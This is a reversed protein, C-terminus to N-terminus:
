WVPRWLFVRQWQYTRFGHGAYLRLAPDNREDVSATLDHVGRDAAQHVAFRLVARGVGRGRAEPVVGLYGLELVGPTGTDTLILVGVPRGDADRALWWLPPDPQNTRYGALIDDTPRDTFAEPVDLSGDYSLRLTDAFATPDAHAPAFRYDSSPPPPTHVGTRLMHGIRTVPRFGARVLPDAQAEDDPDLFSYALPAGRDRVLAVVAAALEDGAEGEPQPPIVVASGGNLFQVVAGAVPVGGRWALLVGAPDLEGGTLMAGFRETRAARQDPPAGACMLRAAAAFDAPTVAAVTVSM